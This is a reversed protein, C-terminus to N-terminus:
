RGIKTMCHWPILLWWFYEPLLSLCALRCQLPSPKTASFRVLLLFCFFWLLSTQFLLLPSINPNKISLFFLLKSPQCVCLFHVYSWRAFVNLYLYRFTQIKAKIKVLGNAHSGRIHRLDSYLNMCNNNKWILWKLHRVYECTTTKQAWSMPNKVKM